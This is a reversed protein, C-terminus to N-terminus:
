GKSRFNPGRDGTTRFPITKVRYEQDKERLCSGWESAGLRSSYQSDTPVLRVLSGDPYYLAFPDLVNFFCFLSGTESRGLTQTHVRTVEECVSVYVFDDDRVLAEHVETGPLHRPVDTQLEDM